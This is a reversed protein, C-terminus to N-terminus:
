VVSRGHEKKQRARGTFYMWASIGGIFCAVFIVGYRPDTEKVFFLLTLILVAILMGLGGVIKLQSHDDAEGVEQEFDVPTKLLKFFEAVHAKYDDSTRNWFVSTLYTPLLTMIVSIYMRQHWMLDGVWDWGWSKGFMFASSAMLGFFAGVLPAWSPLKKAFFALTYPLGLPTGVLLIIKLSIEYIGGGGSTKNLYYALWMAWLGLALNVGKTFVLLGKDSLKKLGLKRALPPYINKGVLGATGTLFSDLSSMAAAFMAIMILGLLGPPLLKKAVVAYAGDAPNSLQARSKPPPPPMDEDLAEEPSPEAATQAMKEIAVPNRALAEIDKEYLVRGVMPPIFWIFMGIFILAAAFFAAKKADRSTKVALFRYCTTMQTSIIISYAMSALVWAATFYGKGIKGASSSYIHNPEVILKYDAALGHAQIAEHLGHFGGVAKLSLWALVICVPVMILSQLSDTIMVSWSGGSVSYFVVVVGAFIIIANVPLNFAASIFNALGLLFVGGWLMSSAVGIYVFIQEMAPSFRRRITDAPTTARTNRMWGALFVGQILLGLVTGLSTWLVSWGALYAVGCNATFTIASVMQMFISMGVLWWTGKSGMRIYDSVNSSAKRCIYGVGAMLVLYVVLVGVDVMSIEWGQVMHGISEM